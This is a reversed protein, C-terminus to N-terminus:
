ETLPHYVYYKVYLMMMVVLHTIKIHIPSLSPSSYTYNSSQRKTETDRQTMDRERGTETERDREAETHKNYIMLKKGRFYDSLM